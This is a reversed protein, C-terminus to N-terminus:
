WGTDTTACAILRHSEKPTKVKRSKSKQWWGPVDEEQILKEVGVEAGAGDDGGIMEGLDCHGAGVPVDGDQGTLTGPVVGGRDIWRDFFPGAQADDADGPRGDATRVQEDAAPAEDLEGALRDEGRSVEFPDIEDDGRGRRRLPRRNGAADRSMVAAGVNVFHEVEVGVARRRQFADWGIAQDVAGPSSEIRSDHALGGADHGDGFADGFADGVRAADSALAQPRDVVAVIGSTEYREGFIFELFLVVEVATEDDLIGAVHAQGM